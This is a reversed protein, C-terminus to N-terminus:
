AEGIAAKLEAIIGTVSEVYLQDGMDDDFLESKFWDLHEEAIDLLRDVQNRSLIVECLKNSSM